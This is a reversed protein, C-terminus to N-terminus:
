GPYKMFRQSDPDIQSFLEPSRQRLGMPIPLPFSRDFYSSLNPRFEFLVIQEHVVSRFHKNDTQNM